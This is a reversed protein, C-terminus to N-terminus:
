DFDLPCSLGVEVGAFKGCSLSGESIMFMIADAQERQRLQILLIQRM